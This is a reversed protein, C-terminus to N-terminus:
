AHLDCGKSDETQLFLCCCCRQGSTAHELLSHVLDRLETQTYSFSHNNHKSFLKNNNQQQNDIASFRQKGAELLSYAMHASTYMQRFYFYM